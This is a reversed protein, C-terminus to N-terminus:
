PPGPVRDPDPAAASRRKELRDVVQAALARLLVVRAPDATRAKQDIVCLTGLAHGNSTVLPAGAYFRIHPDGTVLPNDAFREDQTADHIVMAENPERIAHSCFAVERPTESAELGLRSKFWQRKDDVLSILAVPTDFLAAAMRTLDDFAPESPTDLVHLADLEALRALEGSVERQAADAAFASVADHTKVARNGSMAAHLTASLEDLSYPKPLLMFGDSQDQALIDSFGSSLVVPLHPHRRAVEQALEIGNMGAMVVDSFMAAFRDAGGALQALAEAASRAGVTSYGLEQLSQEVSAAVEANDEVVLICGERVASPLPSVSVDNSPHAATCRPLYLTFVSGEGVLSQVRVEGGSQKAFGYVQSLGLGTGQGVQKTTFFPEFIRALKDDPIGVGTDAVSVAIYDGGMAAQGPMAALGECRHVGISLRGGRAMADRANVAMNVIATDFQSPDANVYCPTESVTTEIQIHAGTLTGLMDVMARVNHRADFVEPQLLQRRSFALLQHTLKTARSVANSISEMLRARRDDPLTPRRLLDISTRIITLLNNFDHAVGGTLQGVAEMKQAHRLAEEAASLATSGEVLLTELTRNNDALVQAAAKQEEIDTDTGIWRQVGVASRVPVARVLHWRYVGDHRRVRYQVEYPTGQALALQWQNLAEPLDDPHVIRTWGDRDLAGVEAGSYAYVRENFWDLQGDPTATWVHHPMATAIQRLSDESTRLSQEARRRETVDSFLVIVQRREPRGTRFAEVEFWRDDMTEAHQEFRISEGTLAVRGYLDFWHQELNPVLERARKGIVDRLGTQQDFAPNTELFRYDTPAGDADFLMEFVCVGVDVSQFLAQYRGQSADRAEAAQHGEHAASALRAINMLRRADEADFRKDDRHSMVWVTGVTEGEARIPALLIEVIRPEIGAAATYTAQPDEILMVADQQIVASCPSADYPMGGGVLPAWAGEIAEWVFGARTPALLSVGASHAGCADMAASCLAKFLSAPERAIRDALRLLGQNELGHDPSRYGRGWLAERTGDEVPFDFRVLDKLPLDSSNPTFYGM